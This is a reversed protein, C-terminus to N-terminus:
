PFLRLLITPCVHSLRTVNVQPDHRCPRYKVTWHGQRLRLVIQQIFVM